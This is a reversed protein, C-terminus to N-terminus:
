RRASPPPPRPRAVQEDGVRVVPRQEEGVAAADEAGLDVGHGSALRPLGLAHGDDVELADLHLGALAHERDDRQGVELLAVVEHHGGTLPMMLFVGMSCNSRTREVPMRAMVTASSSARAQTATEDPCSSMTSAVAWPRMARKWSLSTRGIPRSAAPTM